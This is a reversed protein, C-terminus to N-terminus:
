KAFTIVDESLNILSDLLSQELTLLGTKFAWFAIFAATGYKWDYWRAIDQLKIYESEM